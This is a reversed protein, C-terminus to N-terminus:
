SRKNCHGFDIFLNHPCILLTKDWGPYIGNLYKIIQVEEPVYTEVGSVIVKQFEHDPGMLIDFWAPRIIGPLYQNAPKINTM